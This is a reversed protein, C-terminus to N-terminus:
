LETNEENKEIIVKDGNPATVRLYFMIKKLMITGNEGYLEM